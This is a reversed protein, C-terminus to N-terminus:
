KLAKLFYDSERESIRTVDFGYEGLTDEVREPTTNFDNVSPRSEDPNPLHVEVFVARCDGKRLTQSMGSLVKHSAGEVDIKILDPSPVGNEILQDGRKVDVESVESNQLKSQRSGSISEPLLAPWQDGPSDTAPLSFLEKGDRDSLAVPRVDANVSNLVLNGRLSKINPPYPEISIVKKARKGFLISHVGINAGIDWVVDEANLVSLVENILTTEQDIIYKVTQVEQRSSFRFEVTEGAVDVSYGPRLNSAICITQLFAFRRAKQFLPRVGENMLIKTARKVLSSM